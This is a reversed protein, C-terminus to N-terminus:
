RRSRHRASVIDYEARLEAETVGFEQAAKRILVELPAGRFPRIREGLVAFEAAMAAPPVGFEAALEAISGALDIISRHEAEMRELRRPLSGTSRM